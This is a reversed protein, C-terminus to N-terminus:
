LSHVKKAPSALSKTCSFEPCSHLIGAIVKPQWGGVEGLCRILAWTPVQFIAQSISSAPATTSSTFFPHTSSAQPFVESVVSSKSFVSKM